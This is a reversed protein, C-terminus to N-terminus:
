AKLWRDFVSDTNATTIWRIAWGLGYIVAGGGLVFAVGLIFDPKGYSFRAAEGEVLAMSFVLGYFVYWLASCIVGLVYILQVLRGTISDRAVAM